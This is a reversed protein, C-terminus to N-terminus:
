VYRLVYEVRQEVSPTGPVQLVQGRNAFRNIVGELLSPDDRLRRLYFGSFSYGDDSGSGGPESAGLM